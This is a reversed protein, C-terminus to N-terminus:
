SQRWPLGAAKWGSVMGRQHQGNPAGEFGDTINYCHLFGQRAAAIAADLSRGGTRCLFLLPVDKALGVGELAEVFRENLIYTPFIKWSIRLQEKGLSTLDPEGSFAWEPPTRVDVLVARVDCQLCNWAEQASIEGAYTEGQLAQVRLSGM